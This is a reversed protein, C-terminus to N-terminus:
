CIKRNEEAAEMTLIGSEQEKRCKKGRETQATRLSESDDGQKRKGEADQLSSVEGESMSTISRVKEKTKVYLSVDSSFFASCENNPIIWITHVCQTLVAQARCAPWQTLSDAM